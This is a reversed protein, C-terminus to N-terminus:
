SIDTGTLLDDFFDDASYFGTRGILWELARVAGVAFGRRNRASHTLEISDSPSDITVQHIGPISGGRVSAVHLENDEIRRQLPDIVIKEKRTSADIIRGALSLATGSPSDSKNKHHYEALMVDYDEFPNIMEAAASVLRFFLNAGISFNSGYLLAAKRAKVVNEAEQLQEQWGTTGVIMPVRHEAALTIREIIGEPLGFEIIGDAGEIAERQMSRYEGSSPDVTSFVGHGREAAAAEVERGMKGYGVIAIKM